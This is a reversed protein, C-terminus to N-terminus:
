YANIAFGGGGLFVCNKTALEGARHKRPTGNIKWQAWPSNVNIVNRSVNRSVNRTSTACTGKRPRLASHLTIKREEHFTRQVRTHTWLHRTHRHTITPNIHLLRPWLAPTKVIWRLPTMRLVGWCGEHFIQIPLLNDKLYVLHMDFLFFFFHRNDILPGDFSLFPRGDRGCLWWIQARLVRHSRGM